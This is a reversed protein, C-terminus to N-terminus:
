EGSGVVILARGHLPQFPAKRGARGIRHQRGILEGLGVALGAVLAELLQGGAAAQTRHVQLFNEGVGGDGVGASRHAGHKM